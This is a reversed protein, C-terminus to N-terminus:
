LACPRFCMSTESHQDATNMVANRARIEDRIVFCCERATATQRTQDVLLGLFLDASMFATSQTVRDTCVFCKWFWIDPGRSGDLASTAPRFHQPLLM